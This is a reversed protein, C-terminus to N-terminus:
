RYGYLPDVGGLMQWYTLDRRESRELGVRLCARVSRVNEDHVCASVFKRTPDIKLMHAYTTRLAFEAISMESPCGALDSIVRTGQYPTSVGLVLLKWGRETYRAAKQPRVAFRDFATVAVLENGDRFALTKYASGLTCRRIYDQAEAAYDETVPDGNWCCFTLFAHSDRRKNAYAVDLTSASM